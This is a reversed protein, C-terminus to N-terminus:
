FNIETTLKITNDAESQENLLKLNIANAPNWILGYENQNTTLEAYPTVGGTIGYAVQTTFSIEDSYSPQMTLSLGQGDNGPQLRITANIGYEQNDEGHSMHLNAALKLKGKNAAIGTKLEAATGTKNDGSQNSLGVEINGTLQDSLPLDTAILVKATQTKINTREDDDVSLESRSLEAKIKPSPYGAGLRTDGGITFTKLSADHRENNGSDEIEGDGGGISGWVSNREDQWGFYPHITTLDITYKGGDNADTYDLDGDTFSVAAGSLIGDGVMADVGFSLSTIDGDWGLKEGADDEGNGDVFRLGGGGWFSLDSLKDGLGGANLPM